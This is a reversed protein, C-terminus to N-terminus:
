FGYDAGVSLANIAALNVLLGSLLAFSMVRLESLLARLM